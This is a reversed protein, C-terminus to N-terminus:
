KMVEPNLDPVEVTAEWKTEDRTHSVKVLKGGFGKVIVVTKHEVEKRSNATILKLM